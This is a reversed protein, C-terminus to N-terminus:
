RCRARLAEVDGHCTRCARANSDLLASCGAAFGPPHPSLGAGIGLAGHCTVCDDEAHCSACANMSRQAERAHLAPGEVWVANPPHYREVARVDPASMTSLGLRAHCEACFRSVQHCSTCRPSDRRAQAVHTTLYDGPHVRLSRV